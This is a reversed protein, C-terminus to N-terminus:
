LGLKGFLSKLEEVKRQEIEGNLKVEGTVRTFVDGKLVTCWRVVTYFPYLIPIRKLRPYLICLDVYPMFLRELIFRFTGKTKTKQAVMFTEDTGYAGGRMVYYEMELTLEDHKADEFWVSVLRRAMEVFRCIDCEQCFHNLVNENFEMHKSLLWVDAFARVGCGGGTFHYAMHVFIHFLFYEPTMEYQFGGESVPRVYEWVRGLVKDMTDNHELIMFHLELHVNSPSYLSVDKYHRAEESYHLRSVLLECARDLDEPRILIDIDCSTRYWPELYYKRIVSGKLPVYMIQEQEFLDYIQEQEHRINEYRKVAAFISHFFKESIEDDGLLGYKQLAVAVIHTLDHMKSLHYLNEIMDSTMQRIVEQDLSQGNLESKIIQVFIKIVQEM